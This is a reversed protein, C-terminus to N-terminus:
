LIYEIGRLNSSYILSKEKIIILAISQIVSRHMKFPQFTHKDWFFCLYNSVGICFEYMQFM